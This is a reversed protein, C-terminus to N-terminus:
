WKKNKLKILKVLNQVFEESVETSNFPNEILMPSGSNEKSIVDDEDSKYDVDEEAGDENNLIDKITQLKHKHKGNFGLFNNNGNNVGGRRNFRLFRFFLNM